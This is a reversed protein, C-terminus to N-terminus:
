TIAKVTHRTYGRLLHKTPAATDMVQTWGTSGPVSFSWSPIHGAIIAVIIIAIINALITPLHAYNLLSHITMNFYIVSISCHRAQTGPISLCAILILTHKYTSM